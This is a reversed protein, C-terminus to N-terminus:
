FFFIVSAEFIKCAHRCLGAILLSKDYQLKSKSCLNTNAYNSQLIYTKYIQITFMFISKHLPDTLVFYTTYESQSSYQTSICKSQQRLHKNICKSQQLLHKNICRSQQRLHKNICKSQQRLHKNIYTSQSLLFRNVYKPQRHSHTEYKFQSYWHSFILTCTSTFKSQSCLHANIDNEATCKINRKYIQVTFMWRHKLHLGSIVTFEKRHVRMQRQESEHNQFKPKTWRSLFPLTNFRFSSM